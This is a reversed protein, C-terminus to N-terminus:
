KTLNAVTGKSFVPGRHQSFPTGLSLFFCDHDLMKASCNRSHLLLFHEESYRTWMASWSLKGIAQAASQKEQRLSTLLVSLKLERPRRCIVEARRWEEATNAGWNESLLMKVWVFHSSGDSCASQNSILFSASAAEWARILSFLSRWM